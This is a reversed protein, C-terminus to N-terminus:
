SLLHHASKLKCVEPLANCGVTYTWRCVCHDHTQGSSPSSRGHLPHLEVDYLPDGPHGATDVCEASLLPARQVSTKDQLYFGNVALGSRWEHHEHPELIAIAASWLRVRQSAVALAQYWGCQSYTPHPSLPLAPFKAQGGEWFCRHAISGQTLCTPHLEKM